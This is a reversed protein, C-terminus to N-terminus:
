SFYMLKIQFAEDDDLLQGGRPLHKSNWSDVRIRLNATDYYRAHIIYSDEGSAEIRDIITYNTYPVDTSTLYSWVQGIEYQNYM